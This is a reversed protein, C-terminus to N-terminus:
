TMLGLPASHWAGSVLGPSSARQMKTNSDGLFVCYDLVPRFLVKGVYLLSLPLDAETTSM